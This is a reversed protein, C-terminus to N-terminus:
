VDNNCIRWRSTNLEICGIIDIHSIRLKILIASSAGDDPSPLIYVNEIAAKAVSGSRTALTNTQIDDTASRSGQKTHDGIPVAESTCVDISTAVHDNAITVERVCLM